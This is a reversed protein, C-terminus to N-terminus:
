HKRGLSIEKNYATLVNDIYRSHLTSKIADLADSLPIAGTLIVGGRDYVCHMNLVVARTEIDDVCDALEYYIVTPKDSVTYIVADCIGFLKGKWLISVKASPPLEVDLTAINTINPLM